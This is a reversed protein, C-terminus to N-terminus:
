KVRKLIYEQQNEVAKEIRNLRDNNQIYGDFLADLKKGQEQEIRTVTNSLIQIEKNTKKQENKFESFDNTLKGVQNAILELLERDTM